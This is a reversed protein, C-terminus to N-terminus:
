RIKLETNFDLVELLLIQLILQAGRWWFSQSIQSFIFRWFENGDHETIWWRKWCVPYLWSGFKPSNWYLPSRFLSSTQYEFPGFSNMWRIKKDREVLDQFIELGTFICKCAIIWEVDLSPVTCNVCVKFLGRCHNKFFGNVHLVKWNNVIM